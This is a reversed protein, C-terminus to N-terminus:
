NFGKKDMTTRCSGENGKGSEYLELHSSAESYHLKCRVVPGAEYGANEEQAQTRPEWPVPKEKHVKFCHMTLKAIVQGM